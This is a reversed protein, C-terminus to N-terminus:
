YPQLGSCNLIIFYYFMEILVLVKILGTIIRTQQSVARTPVAKLSHRVRNSVVCM